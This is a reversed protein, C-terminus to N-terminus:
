KKEIDEQAAPQNPEDGSDPTEDLTEAPTDFVHAALLEVLDAAYTMVHKKWDPDYHPSEPDSSIPVYKGGKRTEFDGDRIGALIKLGFKHRAKVTRFLVKNRSRQISENSYAAREETTPNRYSFHIECNSINDFLKLVNHEDSLRRPM